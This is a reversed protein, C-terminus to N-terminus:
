LQAMVVDFWYQSALRLGGGSGTAVVFKDAVIRDQTHM